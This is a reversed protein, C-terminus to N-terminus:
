PSDKLSKKLDNVEADLEKIRKELWDDGRQYGAIIENLIGLSENALKLESELEKIRKELSGDGREYQAIISDKAAHFADSSALADALAQEIRQEMWGEYHMGQAMLDNACRRAIEQITM